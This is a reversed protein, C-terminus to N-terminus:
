KKISEVIIIIILILLASLVITGGPALDLYFSLILGIIVSMIGFMISYMLGSKFSKAILLSAAVPLVMLSSILLVGVIRMSIAVTLAVLISFYINILKNSIGALYASEEDFTIYFMDDYLFVITALIIVGLGVVMIIDQNTVFALSGFLYSLIGQTNGLSILVSALGVGTSLVISLSIEAYNEYKKRLGEIGLAATISFIIATYVPYIQTIMGFAAGSLAVHSLTDGIVSQRRLVLFYGITPAILAIMVGMIFSKRMFEYSLM